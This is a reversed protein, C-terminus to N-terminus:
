GWLMFIATPARDDGVKAQGIRVRRDDRLDAAPEVAQRQRDLQGRGPDAM